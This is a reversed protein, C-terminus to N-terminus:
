GRVGIQEVLHDPIGCVPQHREFGLRKAIGPPVLPAALPRVIAVAIMRASPSVRAPATSSFIGLSRLPEYKGTKRSCRRAESRASMAAHNADVTAHMSKTTDKYKLAKQEDVFVEVDERLTTQNGKLALIYDAKRAM